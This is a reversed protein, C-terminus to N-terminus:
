PAGQEARPRCLRDATAGLHLRHARLCRRPRPVLLRRARRGLPSTEPGPELHLVQWRSIRVLERLIGDLDSPAVHVLVESTFVIDFLADPYPLRGVPGGVTVHEDLWDRNAWELANAVM